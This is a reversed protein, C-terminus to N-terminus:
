KVSYKKVIAILLAVVLSILFLCAAGEGVAILARIKLIFGLILIVAIGVSSTVLVRDWNIPINLKTM